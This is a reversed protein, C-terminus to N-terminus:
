DFAWVRREEDEDTTPPPFGTMPPMPVTKAIRSDDPTRKDNSRQEQQEWPRTSNSVLVEKCPAAALRRPEDRGCGDCPASRTEAHCAVSRAAASLICGIWSSVVSLRVGEYPQSKEAAAPAHDSITTRVAATCPSQPTLKDRMVGRAGLTTIDDDSACGEVSSQSSYSLGSIQGEREDATFIAGSWIFGDDSSEKRLQQQHVCQNRGAVPRTGTEATQQDAHHVFSGFLKTPKNHLLKDNSFFQDDPLLLEPPIARLSAESCASFLATPLWGHIHIGDSCDDDAIMIAGNNSRPHRSGVPTAVVAASAVETSRPSRCRRRHPEAGEEALLHMAAAPGYLGTM